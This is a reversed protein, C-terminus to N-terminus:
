CDKKKDLAKSKALKVKIKGAGKKGLETAM